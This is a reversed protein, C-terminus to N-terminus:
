SPNEKRLALGIAYAALSTALGAYIPEIGFPYHSQRDALRALVWGLSVLFPLAMAWATARATLRGRGLLATGVPLLLAPTTISGLDHWLDIVSQEALALLAAFVGVVWLSWKSYRM